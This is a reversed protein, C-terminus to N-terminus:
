TTDSKCRLPLPSLGKAHSQQALLPLPETREGFRLRVRAAV